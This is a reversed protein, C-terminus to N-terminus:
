GVPGFELPWSKSDSEEIDKAIHLASDWGQSLVETSDFIRPMANLSLDKV